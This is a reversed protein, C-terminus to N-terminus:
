LSKSDSTCCVVNKVDHKPQRSYDYHPKYHSHNHDYLNDDDNHRREAESHM